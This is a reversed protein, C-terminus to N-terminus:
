NKNNNSKKNRQTLNQFYIIIILFLIFIIEIININTRICVESTTKKNKIRVSFRSPELKSKKSKPPTLPPLPRKTNRITKIEGKRNRRINEIPFTNPMKNDNSSEGYLDNLQQSISPLECENKDM